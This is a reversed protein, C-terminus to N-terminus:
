RCLFELGTLSMVTLLMLSWTVKETSSSNMIIHGDLEASGRTFFGFPFKWFPQPLGRPPEPYVTSDAFTVRTTLALSSSLPCKFNQCQFLYRAGLIYNQPLDLPGLRAWLVEISLSHPLLCGSECTEQLSFPCEQTIVRAWDPQSGLSMAIEDPTALGQLIGYIQSRLESCDNAPSSFTCGTIINHTFLIPARTTTDPSCTGSQSVGLSTLPMAEKLFRGILPSGVKLGVAPNLIAPTPSTKTLQFEVSHTQLLLQSQNVDALTVDVTASKLEGRGTYFIVLKVKQVANICTSNRLTPSPWVSLNTVPILFDSVPAMEAKPIKILHLDSFYSNASLSPDTICSQPTVMRACSLSVSRLFKAPNRDICFASAAPGPSPQRLLGRVSSNPFYTQIVDDVMYFSRSPGVTPSKQPSFHYSDGLVPHQPQAPFSQSTNDSPQVCFLSDTVTILSSDVNARFMLWKEVCVGSIARQPCGTFVASLNALGCDATDCCCGIDCFGPTLDCLCAQPSVTPQVTTATPSEPAATPAETASLTTNVTSSVTALTPVETTNVGTSNVAETGSPAPTASSFPEGNAPTASISSTGVPDTAGHALRGCIVTLILPLFCWQISSM